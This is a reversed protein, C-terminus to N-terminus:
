AVSQEDVIKLLQAGALRAADCVGELTVPTAWVDDADDSPLKLNIGTTNSAKFITVEFKKGEANTNTLRVVNPNIETLGGTTLTKSAAPTYDYNITLSQNVTTVKASDIIYIGYQGEDNQGVYYDTNAVLAGDTGAAVSNVTIASGDGNQNGIKIFKNYAWDGSAVTQVVGSVKAAAVTQYQDIGGRLM